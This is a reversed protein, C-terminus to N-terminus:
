LQQVFKGVLMHVGTDLLALFSSSSPPSFPLPSPLFPPLPLPIYVYM